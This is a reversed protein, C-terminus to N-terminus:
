VILEGTRALLVPDIKLIRVMLQYLKPNYDKFTQAQEFFVEAAVAFFEEKNTTGYERFFAVPHSSIRIKEIEKKAERDFAMMIQRDYFDYEPNEIINILRLAHAMEHFGLHIGDAHSRFGDKLDKWSLAILGGLNVEGKHYKRTITSYYNDPYILIRWFHKFYINPYGFTLQIASGAVLAKMEPTIERIGGRPIFKKIDIFRQVRKEFRIKNKDSLANYFPFNRTLYPQYKREMNRYFLYRKLYKKVFSANIYVLIYYILALGFFLFTLIVILPVPAEPQEM